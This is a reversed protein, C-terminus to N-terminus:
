LTSKRLTAGAGSGDFDRPVSNDPLPDNLSINNEFKVIVRGDPDIGVRKEQLNM